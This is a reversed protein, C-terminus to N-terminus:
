KDDGRLNKPTYKKRRALEDELAKVQQELEAVRAKLQTNEIHINEMEKLKERAETLENRYSELQANMWDITQGQMNVVNSLNELGERLDEMSPEVGFLRKIFPAHTNRYKAYLGVLTVIIAVIGSVTTTPHTLIDTLNM